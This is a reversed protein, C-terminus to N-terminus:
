AARQIPKDSRIGIRTRAITVYGRSVAKEVVDTTMGYSRNRRIFAAIWNHDERFFVTDEACRVILQNIRRVDSSRLMRTKMSFNSFTHDIPLRGFRPEPIIRVALDPALPVIRGAPADDARAELAVPFDSTFFPSDTLDNHLVEWHSNGFISIHRPIITTGVAQPYKPDVTLRVAGEALLETMTKRGLSEPARPLLGNKEAVAATREIQKTLMPVALRMATPSCTLIYSLFGAISFISQQDWKGSRLNSVAVNYVPEVLKLIEEVARDQQLYRNSNGDEIRCVSHAATKFPAHGDKRMAYLFKGAPSYFNRLHVQSVYHDLPM